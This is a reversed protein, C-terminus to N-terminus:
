LRMIMQNLFDALFNQKYPGSLTARSGGDVTKKINMKETMIGMMEVILFKLLVAVKCFIYLM